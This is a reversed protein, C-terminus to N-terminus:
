ELKYITCCVSISITLYNYNSSSTQWDHFLPAFELVGGQVVRVLGLIFELSRLFLKGIIPRDDDLGLSLVMGRRELKVSHWLDDGLAEGIVITKETLGIHIQAYLKGNETFTFLYLVCHTPQIKSPADKRFGLSYAFCAQSKCEM